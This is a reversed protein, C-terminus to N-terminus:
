CGVIKERHLGIIFNQHTFPHLLLRIILNKKIHPTHLQNSLFNIELKPSDGAEECSTQHTVFLLFEQVETQLRPKKIGLLERHTM